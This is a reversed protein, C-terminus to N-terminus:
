GRSQGGFITALGYQCRTGGGPVVAAGRAKSKAKPEPLRSAALPDAPVRPAPLSGQRFFRSALGPPALASAELFPGLFVWPQKTSTPLPAFIKLFFPMETSKSKLWWVAVLLCTFHQGVVVM